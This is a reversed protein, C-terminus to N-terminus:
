LSITQHIHFHIHPHLCISFQATVHLPVSLFGHSLMKFANDDTFSTPAKSLGPSASISSLKAVFGERALIRASNIIDTILERFYRRFKGQIIVCQAIRKFTSGIPLTTSLMFKPPSVIVSRKTLLEERALDKSTAADTESDRPSKSKELARPLCM